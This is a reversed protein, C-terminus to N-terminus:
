VVRDHDIEPPLPGGCRAALAVDFAENLLSQLQAQRNPSRDNSAIASARGILGQLRALATLPRHLKGRPERM